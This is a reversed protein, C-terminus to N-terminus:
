LLKGQQKRIRDAVRDAMVSLGTELKIYTKTTEDLLTGSYRCLSSLSVCWGNNENYTFGIFGGDEKIFDMLFFYDESSEQTIFEPVDAIDFLLIGDSAKEAPLILGCTDPNELIEQFTEKVAGIIRGSYPNKFVEKHIRLVKM